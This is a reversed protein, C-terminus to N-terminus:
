KGTFMSIIGGIIVIVVAIIIPALYFCIALLIGYGIIEM